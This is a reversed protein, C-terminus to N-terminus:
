QGSTKRYEDIVDYMANRFDTWSRVSKALDRLEDLPMGLDYAERLLQIAEGDKFYNPCCNRAIGRIYYLEKIGPDEKSQQTVRCVGSIKGFAEEWSSSTVKGKEDYKVYQAGAVDMGHCIEEVSFKKLWARIKNKGNENVDWGPALKKWYECVHDVTESQLDRLGERWQMMMELQERRDQLGEMQARAKAVATRDDLTKDRKGANCVECATILNVLENSGGNAVPMIHDVQLLVDPASAGCYQCKFSDRKFVEFRVSKSLSIRKTDEASV